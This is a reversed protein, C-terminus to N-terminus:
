KGIGLTKNFSFSIFNNAKNNAYCNCSYDKNLDVFYQVPNSLCQTKEDTIKFFILILVLFILILFIISAIDWYVRNKNEEMKKM